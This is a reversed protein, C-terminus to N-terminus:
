KVFYYILGFLWSAICGYVIVPGAIVFMKAGVGMIMGETKFEIAPSVVANAFGTIPVLTGAGAKKALKQYLGFGTLIASLAILSISTAAGAADKNLGAAKFATSFVEGLLCLAGGVVFAWFCDELVRSNPSARKSMRKYLDKSLGM